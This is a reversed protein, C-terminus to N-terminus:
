WDLRQLQFVSAGYNDGNLVNDAILNGASSAPASAVTTTAKSTLRGCSDIQSAEGDMAHRSVHSLPDTSTNQQTNCAATGNAAVGALSLRATAVRHGLRGALTRRLAPQRGPTRRGDDKRSGGAVGERGKRVSSLWPRAANIAPLRAQMSRSRSLSSSRGTDPESLKRAAPCHAQFTGAPPERPYSWGPLLGRPHYPPNSRGPPAAWSVHVLSRVCYLETPSISPHDNNNVHGRRTWGV